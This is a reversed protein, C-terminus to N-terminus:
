NEGEGYKDHFTSIGTGSKSCAASVGSKWDQKDQKLKAV